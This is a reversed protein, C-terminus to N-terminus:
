QIISTIGNLPAKNPEQIKTYKLIEKPLSYNEM